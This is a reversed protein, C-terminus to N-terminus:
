KSEIGNINTWKGVRETQATLGFAEICVAEILDAPWKTPTVTTPQRSSTSFLHLSPICNRILNVSFPSFSNSSSPM